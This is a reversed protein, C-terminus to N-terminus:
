RNDVDVCKKIEYEKVFLTKGGKVEVGMEKSRKLVKKQVPIKYREFIIQKGTEDSYMNRRHYKQGVVENIYDKGNRIPKYETIDLKKISRVIDEEEQCISFISLWYPGGFKYYPIDVFYKGEKQIQQLSKNSSGGASDGVGAHALLSSMLLAISLITKKM